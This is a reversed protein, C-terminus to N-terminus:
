KLGVRPMDSKDHTDRFFIEDITGRFIGDRDIIVTRPTNEVDESIDSTRSEIQSETTLKEM